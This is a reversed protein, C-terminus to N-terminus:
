GSLAESLTALLDAAAAIVVAEPLVSFGIALGSTTSLGASFDSVALSFGGTTFAVSLGVDSGIASDTAGRPLFPLLTGTDLARTARGVESPSVESMRARPRFIPRM